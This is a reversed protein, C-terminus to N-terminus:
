NCNDAKIHMSFSIAVDNWTKGKHLDFCAKNISSLAKSAQFDFLDIYGEGHMMGKDYVYSMPVDKSIGNMTINIVITGAKAKGTEQSKAKIDVVKATINEKNMMQFFLTDLKKDRGENKSNVSNTAINVSAGVLLAKLNNAEKATPIYKVENFLGGVGIKAPTKYAKWGVTVAGEQSLICGTKTTTTNAFMCSSLIMLSVITKKM